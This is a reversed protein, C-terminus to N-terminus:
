ADKSGDFRNSHRQCLPSLGSDFYPPTSIKCVVDAFDSGAPWSQYFARMQTLNRWAFGRGFRASLDEGLRKILADGYATRDSGGQEFEVIRRGIEWYTATMLSNIRRAAVHRANLPKFAKSLSIRINVPRSEM